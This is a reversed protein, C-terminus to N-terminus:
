RGFVPRLQPTSYWDAAAYIDAAVEFVIAEDYPAGVVQVSGPIGISTITSPVTIAPCRSAMNFPFTAAVQGSHWVDVPTGDIMVPTDIYDNGAELGAVLM